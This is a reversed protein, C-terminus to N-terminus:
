LDWWLGVSLSSEHDQFFEGLQSRGRYYEIGFRYRRGIEDQPVVLGLQVTANGRWDNEQFFSCDAAAYWGIGAGWLRKPSEYELGAQGRWLDMLEKNSRHYARGAEAYLRWQRSFARSAGLVVEERTYGVRTRGTREAYEDGVHSSDHFTGLKLALGEGDSWALSLHYLGDWGINDLAHDLDFQGLFNAGVDLQYGRDPEGAPHVRLLGYSGGMRIGLRNSGADAIESRGYHRYTVSFGSRRPDAISRPFLDTAPGLRLTGGSADESAGARPEPGSAQATTEDGAAAVRFLAVCLLIVRFLSSALKRVTRDASTRADCGPKGM